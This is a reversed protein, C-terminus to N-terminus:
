NKLTCRGSKSIIGKELSLCRPQRWCGAVGLFGVIFMRISGHPFKRPTYIGSKKWLDYPMHMSLRLLQWIARRFSPVLQCERWCHGLTGDEVNEAAGNDGKQYQDNKPMRLCFSLTSVVPWLSSDLARWRHTGRSLPHKLLMTCPHIIQSAFGFSAVHIRQSTQSINLMVLAFRKRCISRQVFIGNPTQEWEWSQNTQASRAQFM